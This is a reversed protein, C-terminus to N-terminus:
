GEGPTLRDRTPRDGCVWPQDGQAGLYADATCALVGTNIDHFVGPALDFAVFDIDKHVGSRLRDFKSPSLDCQGNKGSSHRGFSGGHATDRGDRCDFRTTARADFVV